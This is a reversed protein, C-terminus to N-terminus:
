PNIQARANKFKDGTASVSYTNSGSTNYSVSNTRLKFGNALKDAHTAFTVANGNITMTTPVGNLYVLPGDANANGTFTGSTTITGEPLNETCLAKFGSPATYAFPRQGFNCSYTTASNNTGESYAPFFRGTLGTYAANTGAVPNGSAQWTGNKAFFVKGNDADFAIGIIDNTTYSSGYSSSANNNYKTGNLSYYSYGSADGGIYNTLSVNALAIGLIWYGSNGTILTEWYWKGSDVGMSGLAVAYNNAASWTADLNGNAFTIQGSNAGGVLPNLTCYNGRVQGGAGTDTGFATPVDVLSDNGAGATISFNNPTWNNANGSLDKGLTAATTNSNDAFNLKFGNTGYTGTYAKPQWVGNTDTQGFSSPTLAQGDIFHIDALYGSFFDDYVSADLQAGIVHPSAANIATDANQAPNVLTNFATIQSGNVYLKIRDNATSLTTNVACTVHYWASPDRFNATTARFTTNYAGIWLQNGNFWLRLYGTDSTTGTDCVFLHGITLGSRKVWGSWTWTKRNGASAPTRNLYASDVANFRLSREIEYNAAAGAASALLLPNVSGPIM